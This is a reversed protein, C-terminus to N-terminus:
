FNVFCFHLLLNLVDLMSAVGNMFATYKPKKVYLKLFVENAAEESIHIDKVITNIFLTLGDKYDKVIDVFGNKDGNLFRLYSSAGNEM